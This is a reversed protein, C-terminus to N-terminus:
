SLVLKLFSSMNAELSLKTEHHLMRIVSPLTVSDICTGPILPISPGPISDWHPRSKRCRDLGARPGM